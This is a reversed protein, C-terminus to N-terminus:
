IWVPALSFGVALLAISLAGLQVFHQEFWEM